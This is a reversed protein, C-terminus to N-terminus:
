NLFVTFLDETQGLPLTPVEITETGTKANKKTSVSQTPEVFEALMGLEGGLNRALDLTMTLRQGDPCEIHVFKKSVFIKCEDAPINPKM